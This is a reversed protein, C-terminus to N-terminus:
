VARKEHQITTGPLAIGARAAKDAKVQLAIRMDDHDAVAVALAAWDHVHAFTVNRLSVRAGTRGASPPRYEAEREAQKAAAIAKGAEALQDASQSQAAQRIAEEAERALRAAERRQAVVREQELRDQERLFETQARKLRQALATPDERLERWKDDVRKGGDLFPRKEVAHLATARGAIEALRKAWIAARDAAPKDNIPQRLFAEAQDREGYFELKLREIEEIEDGPLNHGIGHPPEDTWGDGKVAREYAEFPVPYRCAMHWLTGIRDPPVYDGDREAQWQGASDMFFAVPVWRALRKSYFRFYGTEPSDVHLPLVPTGILHPEDKARQWWAWEDLTAAPESM